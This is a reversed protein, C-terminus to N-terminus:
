RFSSGLEVAAVLDDYSEGILTPPNGGIRAALAPTGRVGIQQGLRVDSEVQTKNKSCELAQAYDLGLEGAVNRATSEDYLGRSANQFFLESASWFSGPKQDEFCAAINGIFQTMAGGATPFIRLEYQAKGSQVYENIFRDMTPKYSICHPCAFDAFEVITVPAEPNGIVFGGDTQRSQPMAALTEAMSTVSNSSLAILVVAAVLAAAVVGIIILRNRQQSSSPSVLSQTKTTM